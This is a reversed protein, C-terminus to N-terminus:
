YFDFIYATTQTSTTKPLIKTKNNEKTETVEEPTNIEVPKTYEPIEVVPPNIPNVGGNFEPIEVIPPSILDGNEDVPTNTGIPQTYEPIEVTPPLILDGNEDVPTNTGIPKNYEPIEVTPPLILDGNEDVPTNTGIPKTYEPIEVVPPQPYTGIENKTVNSTILGTNEDVIYSTTEEYVKNYEKILKTEDAAPVKIVSNVPPIVTPEGVKETINGDKENVSYTTVVTKEGVKGVVFIENPEGKKRTEDKIYVTKFPITEKSIKDKAGVKIVTETPNMVIPESRHEQIVGTKSDITYTIKVVSSGQTGNLREHPTGKDRSSDKEYRVPSDLVKREETPKTGIKLIKDVKPKVVRSYDPDNEKYGVVGNEGNTEIEEVGKELSEDAKYITEFPVEKTKESSRYTLTVTREGSMVLDNLPQSSSVFEYGKIEKKPIPTTLTATPKNTAVLELKGTTM